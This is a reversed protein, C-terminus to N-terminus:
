RPRAEGVAGLRERGGERVVVVFMSGAASCGPKSGFRRTV